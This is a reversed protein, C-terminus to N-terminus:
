NFESVIEYQYDVKAGRLLEIVAANGTEIVRSLPTGGNEDQFDPQAGIKLLEM